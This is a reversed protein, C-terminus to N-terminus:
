QDPFCLRSCAKLALGEMTGDEEEDSDNGFGREAGEIAARLQGRLDPPLPPLPGRGDMRMVYPRVNGPSQLHALRKQIDPRRQLAADLAHAADLDCQM